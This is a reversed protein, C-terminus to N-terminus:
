NVPFNTDSGVLHTVHLEFAIFRLSVRGGCESSGVYSPKSQEEIAEVAHELRQLTYDFGNEPDDREITAMVDRADRMAKQVRNVGSESLEPQKLASGHVFRASPARPFFIRARQTVQLEITDGMLQTLARSM